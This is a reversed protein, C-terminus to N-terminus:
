KVDLRSLGARCIGKDQKKQAYAFARGAGRITANPNPCHEVKIDEFGADKLMSTLAPASPVFWNWGVRSLDKENGGGHVNSGWYMCYPMPSDISETEILVIGGSKCMNFMMRLALVPDSLHYIVGPCYVVDFCNSISELEYFSRNIISVDENLGFSDLLFQTMQAYKKVEEVAVVKKALAAMMLTTGGTWCGIDLVSKDRFTDASLDFKNCFDSLLQLHRNAMLGKIAFSGFNHDHGWYFKVSLDRQFAVEEKSYGEIEADVIGCAEDIRKKFAEPSIDKLNDTSYASFLEAFEKYHNRM